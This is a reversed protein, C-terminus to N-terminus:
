QNGPWITEKGGSLINCDVTAENQMFLRSIKWLLRWSSDFGGVLLRPIVMNHTHSCVVGSLTSFGLRYGAVRAAMITREDANGNPFSIHRIEEGIIKELIVRSTKLEEALEEDLLNDLIMHQHSHSGFYCLGSRHMELVQGPSVPKEKGGNECSSDTVYMRQLYSCIEGAIGRTITADDKKVDELLEQIDDWRSSAHLKSFHYNKLGLFRLDLSDINNLQIPRIIKEFWFPQGTLMNWTSVFFLAPIDHKKMLPFAVHFSSSYGDDFTLLLNLRNKQLREPNNLDEPRIFTGIKKLLRIQRDFVAENVKLWSPFDGKMSIDHYGLVITCCHKGTSLVNMLVPEMSFCDNYLVKM